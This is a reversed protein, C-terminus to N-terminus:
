TPNVEEIPVQNLDAASADLIDAVSVPRLPWRNGRTALMAFPAGSLKEVWDLCFRGQCPGMGFRGNLRLSRPTAVDGSAARLDALTRNECRCIVTDKPLARLEAQGAGAFMEALREQAARYQRLAREPSRPQALGFAHLIERAARRGDIEAAWRGLVNRCDGASAVPIPADKPIGYDNRALGDHLALRDVELTKFRGNRTTHLRLAAGNEEIRRVAIGTLIPVRALKLRALFGVAERLVRLPLRLTSIPHRFPQAEDLIAVPPHGARVLQAGIAYLLPGSGALAIRNGQVEGNTKLAVQLAGATNVLPHTWGPRPRVLERAGTAFVVASPTLVAGGAGTLLATGTYDLGIFATCCRLDIRDRMAALRAELAVVEAPKTGAAAKSARMTAYVAGGIGSAQEAVVVRQGAEALALAAHLGAPGAGVILIPTDRM